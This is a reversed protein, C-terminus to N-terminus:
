GLRRSLRCPAEQLLWLYIGSASGGDETLDERVMKEGSVIHVEDFIVIDYNDM